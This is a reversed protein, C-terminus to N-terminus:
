SPAQPWQLCGLLSAHSARHTVTWSTVGSPTLTIQTHKCLTELLSQKPTLTCSGSFTIYCPSYGHETACQTFDRQKSKKKSLPHFSPAPSPPLAPHCSKRGDLAPLPSSSPFHSTVASTAPNSCSKPISQMKFAPFPSLSPPLVLIVGLTMRGRKRRQGTM